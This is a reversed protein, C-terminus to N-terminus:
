AAGELGQVFAELDSHRILRRSGIKVSCLEGTRILEYMTRRSIGIIRAAEEVNLTLRLPAEHRETSPTAPTQNTIPILTAGQHQYHATLRHRYIDEIM